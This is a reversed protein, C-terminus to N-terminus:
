NNKKKLCFVAYSIKVHSSNLRTSKRDITFYSLAGTTKQKLSRPKDTPLQLSELGTLKHKWYAAKKELFYDDINEKQWKAFDAYQIPLSSLNPAVNERYAHYIDLLDKFFLPTSWADFAIHHLVLILVHDRENLRVLSARMMYDKSLDFPMYALKRFLHQFGPEDEKFN